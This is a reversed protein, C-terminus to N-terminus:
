REGKGADADLAKTGLPTRTWVIPGVNDLRGVLGQQELRKLAAVVLRSVGASPHGARKLTISSTLLGVNERLMGLLDHDFRDLARM